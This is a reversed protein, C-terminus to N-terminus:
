SQDLGVADRGVFHGPAVAWSHGTAFVIRFSGEIEWCTGIAVAFHQALSVSQIQVQFVETKFVCRLKGREGAALFCEQFHHHFSCDEQAM